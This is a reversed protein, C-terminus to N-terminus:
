HVTLTEDLNLLVSAVITYAALEATAIRDDSPTDGTKLLAAAAAPDAEFRQLQRTLLGLLPRLETTEPPRGTLLRFTQYIRSTSDMSQELCMREALKRAAEVFTPDNMLVLAQMPTNTTERRVM